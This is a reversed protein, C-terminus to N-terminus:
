TEASIKGDKIPLRSDRAYAAGLEADFLAIYRHLGILVGRMIELDDDSLVIALLSQMQGVVMLLRLRDDASLDDTLRILVEPDLLEKIINARRKVRASQGERDGPSKLEKDICVFLASAAHISQTIAVVLDEKRVQARLEREKKTGPGM